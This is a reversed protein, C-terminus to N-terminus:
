LITMTTKSCKKTLLQCTQIFPPITRHVYTIIGDLINNILVLTPKKFDAPSHAYADAADGGYLHYNIIATLALMLQQM